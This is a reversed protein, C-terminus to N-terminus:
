FSVKVYLWKAILQPCNKIFWRWAFIKAVPKSRKAIFKALSNLPRLRVKKNILNVYGIDYLCDIILKITAEERAMLSTLLILIEQVREAELQARASTTSLNTVPQSPVSIIKNVIPDLYQFSPYVSSAVRGSAGFITTAPNRYPPPTYVYHAM